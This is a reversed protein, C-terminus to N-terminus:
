KTDATEDISERFPLLVIRIDYPILVTGISIQEGPISQDEANIDTAQVNPQFGNITLAVLQEVDPDNALRTHLEKYSYKKGLEPLEGTQLWLAFYDRIQCVMRRQIEGEDEADNQLIAECVIEVKQYSPNCVKLSVFPSIRTSLWNRIEALKWAPTIPYPNGDTYSFVVVYVDRDGTCMNSLCHVKPIEPFQELVMREYDKPTVARNRHSIRTSQRISVESTGEKPKGGFGSLPQLITGVRPDEIQMKQITEALLPTGDGNDAVVKLCNLFINRIAPYPGSNGNLRVRLWFFPISQIEQPIFLEIFGNQTFGYTAELLLYEPKLEVWKGDKRYDLELCPSDGTFSGDSLFMDKRIYSLDVYMCIKKDSRMGAFKLYLNRDNKLDELFSFSIDNSPSLCEEYEQFDAIRLLRLPNAKEDDSNWSAKYALEIDSLLPIMPSFPIEKQEKEKHSSNYIMIDAFLRRYEEMGFGIAPANLTVRFLLNTRRGCATNPLYPQEAIPMGGEDTMRFHIDAEEKLEGDQETFLPLLTDPCPYWKDNKQYEAKIHFSENTLPPDQVYNKYIDAYGGTVQPLKSWIGKLSLEKVTKKSIENHSFMFWTGREGQIGFPYFAQASDIEGLENYLNFHRIGEVEVDISVRNFEIAKIWDYPCNENRTLIRICPYISTCDHMEQLCPSLPYEMELITFEFTLKTKGDTEGISVTPLYDMWGEAYSVHLGFAGSLEADTISHEGFRAMAEDTLQFSISVKRKGEELIFMHSELMWGCVVDTHENKDFLVVCDSSNSFDIEQAYLKNNQTGEQQMFVTCARVLKGGTLYKPAETYYYVDQGAVNEALFKTGEYLTFGEDKPHLVIYTYDQKVSHETTRLIENHYYDPLTLLSDNFKKAVFCYNRIYVLLLALSPDITGSDEIMRIYGDGQAKINKIGQLMQYYPQNAPNLSRGPQFKDGIKGQLADALHQRIYQAARISSDQHVVSGELSRTCLFADLRNNWDIIKDRLNKTYLKQDVTGRSKVFTDRYEDTNKQVIEILVTLVHNHWVDILKHSVKQTRDYYKKEWATSMVWRFLERWDSELADFKELRAKDQRYEIQNLGKKYYNRWDAM